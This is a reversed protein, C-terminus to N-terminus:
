RRGTVSLAAQSLDAKVFGEIFCFRLFSRLACVFFQASGVSLAESEVLVAGTVDGATLATIGEPASLGDRFRRARAVYAAATCQALGREALLYREFSVLLADDPVSPPVAGEAELVGLGRLVDLLALLGQVSIYGGHGQARQEDVFGEIGHRTLSGVPLGSAELCRSLRAVQRLENVSTLPTYGREKLEARYADVFPALPGTVIVGCVRSAARAM